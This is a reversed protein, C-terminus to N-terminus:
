GGTISTGRECDLSVVSLCAKKPLFSMLFSGSSQHPTHSKLVFIGTFDHFISGTYQFNDFTNDFFVSRFLGYLNFRLNIFYM